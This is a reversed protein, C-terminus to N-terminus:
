EQSDKSGQMGGEANDAANSASSIGSSTRAELFSFLAQLSAFRVLEATQTSQASARWPSHPSDQWLRVLYSEYGAPQQENERRHAM